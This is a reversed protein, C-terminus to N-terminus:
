VHSRAQSHGSKPAFRFGGDASGVESIVLSHSFTCSCLIRLNNEEKKREVTVALATRKKNV